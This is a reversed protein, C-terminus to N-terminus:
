RRDHWAYVGAFRSLDGAAGPEADLRLPPVTIEFLSQMLEPFLSRYLARGTDSNTM